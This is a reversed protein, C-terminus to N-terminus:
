NHSGCLNIQRLVPILQKSQPKFFPNNKNVQPCYALILIQVLSLPRSPVTYFAWHIIRGLIVAVFVWGRGMSRNLGRWQVASSTHPPCLGDLSQENRGPFSLSRKKRDLTFTRWTRFSASPTSMFRNSSRTMPLFHFEHSLEERAPCAPRRWHPM